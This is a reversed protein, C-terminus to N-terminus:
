NEIWVKVADSGRVKRTKIRKEAAAKRWRQTTKDTADQEGDSHAHYIAHLTWYRAHTDLAELTAAFTPTVSLRIRENGGGHHVLLAFRGLSRVVCFHHSHADLGGCRGPEDYLLTDHEGLAPPAVRRVSPTDNPQWRYGPQGNITPKGCCCM